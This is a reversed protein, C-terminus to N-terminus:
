NVIGYHDTCFCENALLDRALLHLQGEGCGSGDGKEGVGRKHAAQVRGSRLVALGVLLLALRWPPAPLRM